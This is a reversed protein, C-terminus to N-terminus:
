LRAVRGRQGPRRPDDGPIGSGELRKGPDGRRQQRPLHVPAALGVLLLAIRAVEEWNAGEAEADLPRWHTFLHQEDYSTLVLENPAAHGVDPDLAPEKM